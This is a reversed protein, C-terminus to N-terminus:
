KVGSGFKVTLSTNFALLYRHRSSIESTGSSYSDVNIGPLCKDRVMLRILLPVSLSDSEAGVSLVVSLRGLDAIHVHLKLGIVPDYISQTVHIM